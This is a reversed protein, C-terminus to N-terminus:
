MRVREALNQVIALVSEAGAAFTGFRRGYEAGRRTTWPASASRVAFTPEVAVASPPPPMVIREAGQSRRNRLMEYVPDRKADVTFKRAAIRQGSLRAIPLDRQSDM